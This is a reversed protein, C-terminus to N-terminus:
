VRLAQRLPSIPFAPDPGVFPAAAGRLDSAVAGFHQAGETIATNINRVTERGAAILHRTAEVTERRVEQLSTTAEQLQDTTTRVDRQVATLKARAVAIDEKLQHFEAVQDRLVRNGNQILSELETNRTELNANTAAARANEARLDTVTEKLDANTAATKANEAKLNTVTEELRTTTAASRINEARLDTVTAEINEANAQSCSGMFGLGGLALNIIGLPNGTLLSAVGTALGLTGGGIFTLQQSSPIAIGCLNFGCEQMGVIRPDYISSVPVSSKGRSEYDMRGLTTALLM